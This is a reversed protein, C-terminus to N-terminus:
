RPLGPLLKELTIPFETVRVGTANFVANAVAAASGCIGLEGLGKAGLPNAKDDFDELIIADVAPVDAHVPVLYGALDRNVFAGSRPDVIGEEHLAAGLGWIMGGILQSRATKHNFIRGATFVGLMRRLRIEGTDADVHVEAFHAGYSNVSYAAYNPADEQDPVAGIASAGGPFNRAVIETLTEYVGGVGLRGSELGVSRLDAGRLPSGEDTAITAVLKQILGQCAAYVAGTSNTAGWSGGSGSSAPFDADGLEVRVREIPLGLAEAVVQTLITYTGTGIDTMDSQVVAIGDAGLQVRAETAAQFHPRIAAAMGYGIMWQRDRVSAPARPRDSWGFRRAGERMCEVLRRGSFPVGSEPHREPENKIRLEIPDIGLLHALNDMAVEIAILGPAEGPARVDEGAPINLEVGRHRTLRHPAAYLNRGVTATQEVYDSGVGVSMTVDHGFAILRGDREAGLRVRQSTTPRNGILHFMQQRTASVKVLQKLLRAAMVALITEDHIGLKSGFGGGVFRSLVKVNRPDIGFTAAVRARAWATVQSSVHITVTDGNWVALCTHPEMPQSFCYPTTYLQDLKVPATAFGAAFDGVSSEVPFGANVGEPVFAHDLRARFDFRGASIEYGVDILAAAARAQEFTAAVVLAVAQGYARVEPTNLVPRARLYPIPVSLDPAHQPPATLHTVVLRVGPAQQARATDIRTIKGHGITAGVIFGYLPQGIGWEEYAYTATGSAKRPGDVRNIPDGIM